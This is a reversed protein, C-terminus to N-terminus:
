QELYLQLELRIQQLLLQLYENKSINLEFLQSNFSLKIVNKSLISHETITTFIRMGVDQSGIHITNFIFEAALVSWATSVLQATKCESKTLYTFIEVLLENSFSGAM